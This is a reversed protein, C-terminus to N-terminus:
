QGCETRPSYDKITIEYLLDIKLHFGKLAQLSSMSLIINKEKKQHIVTLALIVARFVSVSNPLICLLETHL